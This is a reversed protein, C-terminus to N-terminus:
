KIMAKWTNTILKQMQISNWIGGRIDKEVTSLMNIDTLLDLKVKTKKLVAQWALGPASLLKAPDLEYIELCMNRFNEFVDALLLANSQVYLNHHEGLNKIEFEKWVIDKINLHSYFDEKEPLSTENFNEWDDM